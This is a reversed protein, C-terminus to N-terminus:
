NLNFTPNYLFDDDAPGDDSDVSYEHDIFQIFDSCLKKTEFTKYFLTECCEFALTTDNQRAWVEIYNINLRQGSDTIIFLM